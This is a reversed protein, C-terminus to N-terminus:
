RHYEELLANVVDRVNKPDTGRYSIKFLEAGERGGGSKVTVSINAKISNILGQLGPSKIDGSYMGLKKIVRSIIDKSAIIDQMSRTGDDAGGPVGVGQILPNIITSRQIFITSNSEYIKPMIFGALTCISLVSLAVSLALYRRKLILGWYRKIDFINIDNQSM